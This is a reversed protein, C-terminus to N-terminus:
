DSAAQRVLVQVEGANNALSAPSDNVRLFLTGGREIQLVRRNGVALATLLPSPGAPLTSDDVVAALLTGIPLGRHYRLTVGNPESWWVAPQDDLQFRGRAAIEISQGAECRIGTAQWGRDAAIAVARGQGAEAVAESDGASVIAERAVDHGYDLNAVFWQWEHNLLPWDDALERQFGLTFDISVDSARERLARFKASTRPHRDLFACAAWCWGYPENRLHAHLGYRMIEDLSMGRGAAFEDQVIKIRGWGPSSERSAPMVNLRLRGDQWEHTALLEAMGEKYWPPGGGGVFAEMFGHTGEHLFLHRRYFETEQEYLWLRPGQQYGHLFPPLSAPLLGLRQFRSKDRMVHGIVRWEAARQPDIEFYECWLPVAADFVAPLEDIAPDAPVDTLLILHRGEVRRIGAAALREDDVDLEARVAAPEAPQNAMAQFSEIREARPDRRENRAAGDGSAAGGQSPVEDVGRVAPEVRTEGGDAGRVAPEVLTEGGDVGRVAPEALTE